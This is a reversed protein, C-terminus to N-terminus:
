PESRPYSGLIRLMPVSAAVTALAEGAGPEDADCDLDVWFVYEWSRGHLPRSELKSMNIGAAAFVGALLGLHPGDREIWEAADPRVIRVLVIEGDPLRARHAQFFLRAELPETEFATFVQDAPRGLEREVQALMAAGGLAARRDPLAALEWGEAPPLLDVRAALYRGFGSFVPGLQELALRLRRAVATGGAPVPEGALKRPGQLLGAHRFTREIDARRAKRGPWAPQEGTRSEIM